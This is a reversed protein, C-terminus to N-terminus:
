GRLMHTAESNGNVDVARWTLTAGRRVLIPARYRTYRAKGLKREIGAVGANDTATLTV